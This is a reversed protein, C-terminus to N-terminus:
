GRWRSTTNEHACTYRVIYAILLVCARGLFIVLLEDAQTERSRGVNLVGGLVPSTPQPASLRRAVKRKNAFNPAGSRLLIM